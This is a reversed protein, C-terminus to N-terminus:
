HIIDALVCIIEACIPSIASHLPRPRLVRKYIIVTPGHKKLCFLPLCFTPRYKRCRKGLTNYCTASYQTAHAAVCNCHTSVTHQVTNCQTTPTHQLTNNCHTAAHQLIAPRMHQPCVSIRLFIRTETIITCFRPCM